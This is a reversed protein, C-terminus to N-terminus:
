LPATSHVQDFILYRSQCMIKCCRLILRQDTYVTGLNVLTINEFLFVFAFRKPLAQKQKLHLESAYVAVYARSTLFRLINISLTPLAVSELLYKHLLM